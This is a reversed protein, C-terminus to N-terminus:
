SGSPGPAVRAPPTKPGPTARRGPSAGKAEEAQPLGDGAMLLPRGKLTIKFNFTKLDGLTRVREPLGAPTSTRRFTGEDPWVRYWHLDPYTAQIILRIRDEEDALQKLEVVLTEKAKGKIWEPPPPAPFDARAHHVADEGRCVVLLGGDPLPRAGLLPWLLSRGQKRPEELSDYVTAARAVHGREPSFWFVMGLAASVLYPRGGSVQLASFSLSGVADELGPGPVWARTVPDQAWLPVGLEVGEEWEFRGERLRHIGLFSPPGGGATFPEVAQYLLFRDGELPFLGRIRAEARDVEGVREWTTWGKNRWIAPKRPSGEMRVGWATGEHFTLPLVGEPLAHVVPKRGAEEVVVERDSFTVLRPGDWAQGPLWPLRDQARLGPALLLAAMGLFARLWRGDPGIWGATKRRQLQSM